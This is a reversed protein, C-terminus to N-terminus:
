LVKLEGLVQAGGLSKVALATKLEAYAADTILQNRHLLALPVEVLLRNFFRRLFGM